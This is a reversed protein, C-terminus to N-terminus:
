ASVTTYSVVLPTSVRRSPLGRKSCSRSPPCHPPGGRGRTPRVLRRSVATGSLHDGPAVAERGRVSNPKYTRKRNVICGGGSPCM